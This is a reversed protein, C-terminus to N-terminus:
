LAPSLSSGQPTEKDLRAQGWVQSDCSIKFSRPLRFCEMYKYVNTEVQAESLTELLGEKCLNHFASVINKRHLTVQKSQAIARKTIRTILMLADTATRNSRSQYQLPHFTNVKQLNAAVVKDAHIGVTQALIIPRRGNVEKHDWGQKPM